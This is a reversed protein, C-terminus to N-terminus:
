GGLLDKAGAAYIGDMTKKADADSMGKAKYTGRWVLMSGGADPVVSITSHYDEVPLPSSLISYSYSHKADDWNDLSEVVEGGGKLMVTRQKGNPSIVCDQVAPIWSKIGCFDGIKKWLADPPMSSRQTVSTELALAHATSIALITAVGVSLTLRAM